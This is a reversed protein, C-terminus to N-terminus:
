NDESVEMVVREGDKVMGLKERALREVYEPSQIQKVQEALEQNAKILQQKEQELGKKRITLELLTKGRPVVTLAAIAVIFIWAIIRRKRNPKSM